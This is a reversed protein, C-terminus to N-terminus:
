QTNGSLTFYFVTGENPVSELWIRGGHREIIKKVIALGAGTGEGYKKSENLRKFIRFANEHHQQAIGIGNDRVYFVPPVCSRDCGVEIWKSPKDNYKAANSILNQFVEGIRVADGTVTGMRGNRRLEIGEKTWLRNLDEAVEDVIADVDVSARVLETRGLRSYALLRDILSSLRATLRQINNVYQQAGEDMQGAYDEKLFSAYNHIGRLPEKLDHAATYAFDDLEKNIAIMHAENIQAIKLEEAKLEALKQEADAKQRLLDSFFLTRISFYSLAFFIAMNVVVSLAHDLAPDILGENLAVLTIWGVLFPVVLTAPLLIFAIKGAPGGSTFVRMYGQHPDIFLVTASLFLFAIATNFAMPIYSGIGYFSETGYLYGVIALLTFLAPLVTLAQATPIAAKSQSRMSLMAWGLLFFCLATNPAMRNPHDLEKDLQTTFLLQDVGFSTGLMLDSLNMASAIIVVWTTIQGIKSFMPDINRAHLRLAELGLLLFGMATAPNMAVGSAIGQRLFSIDLTWGVLALTGIIIPLAPLLFRLHKEYHTM